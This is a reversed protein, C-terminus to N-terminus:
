LKDRIIDVAGAVGARTRPLAHVLTRALALGGIAAAAGGLVLYATAVVRLRRKLRRQGGPVAPSAVLMGVGVVGVVGGIACVAAPWSAREGAVKAERKALGTYEEALEALDEATREQLLDVRELPDSKTEDTPHDTPNM